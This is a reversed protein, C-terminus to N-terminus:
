WRLGFQAGGTDRNNGGRLPGDHQAKVAVERQPEEVEEEKESAQIAAAATQQAAKISLSIKQTERDFSLVKVEVENDQQVFADVKSVRHHALESVHVLGEVGPALRVFCGFTATRTVIGKHISGVSFDAEAANWPNELLDRYSLSIKGTAEDIKDIKVKVKQGEELVESPHKVREWSLKSIHILGDLGGLDVFAGFDKISRVTGETEDGVQIKELQEQRKEERERELVARHSLVLNGRRANSETVVCLLKKDVFESTDEVRYETIQSIPIFGKVGGVKCELGGNNTGTVSAEVVTGEELDEWDNAEITGGPLSLSFLGDERNLGRVIVEVSSGIVPEEKFQVFPVVGEDPGGLSIFVDDAHIKLVLGQVRAGDELPNKKVADAAPGEMMGSFDDEGLLNEFEAQVDDPLAHRVNPVSIKSRRPQATPIAIGGRSNDEAATDKEGGLRPRPAKKKKKGATTSGGQLKSPDVTPSSPKNIGRMALPGSGRAVPASSTPPPTSGETTETQSTVADSADTAKGEASPNGTNSSVESPNPATTPSSNAPADPKDGNTM